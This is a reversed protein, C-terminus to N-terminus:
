IKGDRAGVLWGVIKSSMNPKTFRFQINQLHCKMIDCKLFPNKEISVLHIPQAYELLSMYLKSENWVLSYCAFDVWDTLDVFSYYWISPPTNLVPHAYPWIKIVSVLLDCKQLSFVADKSLDNQGSTYMFNLLKATKM